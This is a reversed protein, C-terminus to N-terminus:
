AVASEFYQFWEHVATEEVIGLTEFIDHAFETAATGNATILFETRVSPQTRYLAQGRYVPSHASLYEMANSTHVARNLLGLEALFITAGCIAAVPIGHLLCHAVLPMIAENRGQEWPSGGPMILMATNDKDIDELDTGPMFDLDPMISLGSMSTVPEKRIAVTKLQYEHSRRIGAAAMSTEYDAFGEFVFLYCIKKRTKM